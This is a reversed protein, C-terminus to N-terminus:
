SLEINRRLNKTSLLIQKLKNAIISPKKAKFIASGIIVQDIPLQLVQEINNMNVGGDISIDFSLDHKNRINHLFQVNEAAKWSLKQGGQLSEVTIVNMLSINAMSEIDFDYVHNTHLLYSGLAKKPISIDDDIIERITAMDVVVRSVGSELLKEIFDMPKQVYLHIEIPIDVISQLVPVIWKGFSIHPTSSGDMIDVHFSDAYPSVDLLSKELCTFDADLISISLLVM